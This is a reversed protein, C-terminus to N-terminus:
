YWIGINFWYEDTGGTTATKTNLISVWTGVPITESSAIQLCTATVTKSAKSLGNPFIKVQYSTGSGSQIQGPIGGGSTSTPTPATPQQTIDGYRSPFRPAPTTSLAVNVNSQAFRIQPAIYDGLTGGYDGIVPTLSNGVGTPSQTTMDFDYEKTADLSESPDDWQVDTVIPIGFNNQDGISGIYIPELSALPTYDVGNWTKPPVINNFLQSVEGQQMWKFDGSPWYNPDEANEGLKIPLELLLEVNNDNANYTINNVVAATAAGGNIQYLTCFTSSLEVIDYNELILHKLTTRLKVQKWSNGKRYLWFSMSAEVAKQVNFCYFDYEQEITGYKATNYRIVIRNQKEDSWDIRWTGIMKTIINETPTFTLTVSDELVDGIDITVGSLNKAPLYVFHFTNNKISAAVKCQFCIEKILTFIDKLELVAFNLRFAPITVLSANDVGYTTFTNILWGIISQFDPGVPSQVTAFLENDSWHQNLLTSLPRFLRVGNCNFFRSPLQRTSQAIINVKKYYSKPVTMRRSYSEFERHAYVHLITTGDIINAVYRVPYNGLFRIASGAEIYRFASVERSVAGQLDTIYGTQPSIVGIQTPGVIELQKKTPVFGLQNASYSTNPDFTQTIGAQDLSHYPGTFQFFAIGQMPQNHQKVVSMSGVLFQGGAEFVGELNIPYDTLVYTSTKEYPLQQDLLSQLSASKQTYQTALALTDTAQQATADSQSHDVPDGTLEAEQDEAFAEALAQQFLLNAVGQYFQVYQGIQSIQWDLWYDHFGMPETTVGTPIDTIRSLPCKYVTGFVLPWAKGVLDERLNPVAGEEPSFGAEYNAFQTTAGIKMTRDSDDWIVDSVIRGEFLELMDSVNLGMFYQYIYVPKLHFDTVSFLNLLTQDHDSLTINISVSTNNGDLSLISELNDIQLVRGDANINGDSITKDAYYLLNGNGAWDIGIIFVSESGYQQNLAALM